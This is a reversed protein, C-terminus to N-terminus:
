PRGHGSISRLSELESRVRDRERALLRREAQKRDTVDRLSCVAEDDGCKVVRTEICPREVGDGHEFAVVSNTQCAVGVAELTARVWDQDVGRGMLTGGEGPAILAVPRAGPKEDLIKGNRRVRVLTDPVGEALLRYREEAHMQDTIDTFVTVIRLPKAEADRSIASRCLFWRWEGSRHRMRWKHAFPWLNELSDQLAAEVGPLDDPHSLTKWTDPRSPLEDNEYGLLMKWRVSYHVTGKRLDWDIFGDNTASFLLYIFDGSQGPRRALDDPM